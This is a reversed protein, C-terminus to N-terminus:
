IDEETSLNETSSEEIISEETDRIIIEEKDPQEEERVFHYQEDMKGNFVGLFHLNLASVFMLLTLALLFSLLLMLSSFILPLVGILSKSLIEISGGISIIILSLAVVYITSPIINIALNGLFYKMKFGKMQEESLKLADTSSLNKDNRQLYIARQYAIAKIIGPVILLLSWLFVFVGTLLYTKFYRLMESTDINKPLELQRNEKYSEYFEICILPYILSYAIFLIISNSSTFISILGMLFTILLTLPLTRKMREFSERLLNSITM